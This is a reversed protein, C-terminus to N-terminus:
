KDFHQASCQILDCETFSSWDDSRHFVKHIGDRLDVFDVHSFNSCVLDKIEIDHGGESVSSESFNHRLYLYSIRHFDRLLELSRVSIATHSINLVRLRRRLDDKQYLYDIFRDNAQTFQVDLLRLEELRAISQMSVDDGFHNFALSLEKLRKMRDFKHFAHGPWHLGEIHLTELATLFDIKANFNEHRLSTASVDLFTLRSLLRDLEDPFHTIRHCGELNLFQLRELGGLQTLGRVSIKPCAALNLYVLHEFNAIVQVLVRDSVRDCYALSLVELFSSSSKLQLLGKPTLNRCSHLDLSRLGGLRGIPSLWSDAAEKGFPRLCVTEIHLGLSELLLFIAYSGSHSRLIERFLRECLNKPLVHLNPCKEIRKALVNLCLTQLSNM